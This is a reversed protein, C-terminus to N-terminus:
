HSEVHRQSPPAYYVAMLPIFLGVRGPSSLANELAQKNANYGENGAVMAEISFTNPLRGMDEVFRRPSGPYRHSVSDKGLETTLSRWYFAAGKFTAQLLRDKM